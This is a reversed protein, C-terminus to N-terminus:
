IVIITIQEKQLFYCVVGDFIHLNVGVTVAIVTESSTLSHIFM